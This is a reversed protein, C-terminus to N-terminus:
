KTLDKWLAKLRAKRDPDTNSLSEILEDVLEYDSKAEQTIVAGTTDLPILDLRFDQSIDLMQAVYSKSIKALEDSTGTIKVWLIDTQEGLFIGGSQLEEITYEKIVHQRLNTPIFELSGDGYLVQFGKDPHNAEGFGLTYPNGIYDWTGGDPLAITQRDHYHGSIVRFGAVDEPVLASKDQFYEGSNSGILGQHMIITSGRDIHLLIRKFEEKDHQYPILWVSMLNSCIENTFQAKSVINVSGSTEDEHATYDLFNLSHDVSKENIKDHNGVLMYVSQNCLRFTVLMANVCEGRLQAKTDHLDGAVILPVRLDNAKYVAMRVAKDAVELTHINYHIDSILVAIPKSSQKKRM